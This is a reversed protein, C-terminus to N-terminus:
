GRWRFFAIALLYSLGSIALLWDYPHGNQGRQGRVRRHRARPQVAPAAM